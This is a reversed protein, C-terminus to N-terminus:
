LFRSPTNCEQIIANLYPLRELEPLTPQPASLDPIADILEERLKKCVSPNALVHYTALSLTTKTTDIGAGTISAAEHKLLEVSLEEPPLSQFLESFVTKHAVNKHGDNEGSIIKIIQNKVEGHFQFVPVMDPNLVAVLSEPISQLLTLIWPFHGAIHLSQALKRISTTFPTIFDPFDLFDYSFAFTYYTIPDSVFAAWAENINLVKSSGRYENILRNCLKDAYAQIYPSFDIVKQRSFYPGVAARRRHHQDHHIADFTTLPL